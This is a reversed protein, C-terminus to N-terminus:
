KLHLGSSTKRMTKTEKRRVSPGLSQRVRVAGKRANVTADALFLVRRVQVLFLREAALIDRVRQNEAPDVLKGEALSPFPKVM